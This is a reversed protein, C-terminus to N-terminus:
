RSSPTTSAWATATAGSSVTVSQAPAGFGIRRARVTHTGAPVAGIVYSGDTNTVAGRRTGEVVVTVDAVPLNTSSDTVVGRITGTLDQAGLPTLAPTCMLAAALLLSLRRVVVM